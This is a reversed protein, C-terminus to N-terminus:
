TEKSGLPAGIKTKSMGFNSLKRVGLSNVRIDDRWRGLEVVLERLVGAAMICAVPLVSAITQEFCANALYFINILRTLQYLIAM